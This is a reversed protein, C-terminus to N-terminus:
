NKPQAILSDILDALPALEKQDILNFEKVFLIFHKFSTNLHAEEGLSVIVQFHTTYIHAYVRFLRRFIDIIVTKFDPPFEVGINKSSAKRILERDKCVM